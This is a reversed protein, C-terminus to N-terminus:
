EITVPSVIGEPKIALVSCQIHNVVKEATNGIFFGAIGTRAVTGMVVLDANLGVSKDVILQSASNKQMHIEFDVDLLERSMLIEDLLRERQRRTEDVFGELMDFSLNFRHDRLLAENPLGWAHVIHLKANNTRALEISLDLIRQNLEANAEKEQDLDVAAVITRYSQRRDSDVIWVPCPCKRLLHLDTSGFRSDGLSQSDSFKLVLDYNGQIVKQTIEIFPVGQTVFYDIAFSGPKLHSVAERLQEERLERLPAMLGDYQNPLEGVVDMVSLRVLHTSLQNLLNNAKISDQQDADLVLLVNIFTSM